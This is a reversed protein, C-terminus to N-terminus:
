YLPMTFICIFLVVICMSYEINKISLFTLTISRSFCVSDVQWSVVVYGSIYGYTFAWVASSM